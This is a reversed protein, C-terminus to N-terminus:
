RRRRRPSDAELATVRRDLSRDSEVSEAHLRTVREDVATVQEAYLAIKDKVEEVLIKMYRRSEEGERRLEEKTALKSVAERLEEKTALKSVAEQLEEKAALTKLDEKTALTPLVQEVRALRQDLKEVKEVLVHPEMDAGTM